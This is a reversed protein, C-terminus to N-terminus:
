DELVLALQIEDRDDARSPLPRALIEGCLAVADVLGDAVRGARIGALARDVVQQWSTRPDLAADIAEDGLVVVRHELLAVFILIGTRERTKRVGHEAFARLAAQRARLELEAEPVLARRVGDARCVGHALAVAGVQLALLGALPLEPAFLGGGLLALVAGAAALRWPVTAYDDCARVVAVVIEGRTGREAERVAAEIRARDETGLLQTPKM